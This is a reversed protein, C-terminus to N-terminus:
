ETRLRMGGLSNADPVAESLLVFDSAVDSLIMDSGAALALTSLSLVLAVVLTLSVLPREGGKM